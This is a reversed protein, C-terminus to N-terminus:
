IAIAQLMVILEALTVAQTPRNVAQEIEKAYIDSAVDRLQIPTASQASASLPNL